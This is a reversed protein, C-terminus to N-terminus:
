NKIMKITKLKNNALIKVTYSGSSLNNTNIKTMTTNPSVKIVEQGLLNYISVTEIKENANITFIDLTPNPYYNLGEIDENTVNTVTSEFFEIDDIAFDDKSTGNTEDIIFKLQIPITTDIGNLMAIKKEWGNTNTNSTFVTTYGNAENGAQVSFDVNTAGENNSMIYFSVAPEEISSMDILPSIFTTNTADPNDSSDVFAFYGGSNTTTGEADGANGMHESISNSYEWWKENTVLQDCGDPVFGDNEFDIIYPATFTPVDSTTFSWISSTEGGMNVAAAKWYYTTNYHFISPNATFSTPHGLLRLDDSSSGIFLNYQDVTGGDTPAEWSFAIHSTQTNTISIGTAGDAPIPNISAGPLDVAETLVDDIYWEDDDDQAHVFAIYIPTDIYASLDVTHLGFIMPVNTEDQTDIITFDAHTTQSTTSVRITYESYYDVSSLQRQHFYLIHEAATPTFQPTVLWGETYDEYDFSSLAAFAGTHAYGPRNNWIDDQQVWEADSSVGNSGPFAAWGSPPFSGEFGESIQANLSITTLLLILLTIRKM